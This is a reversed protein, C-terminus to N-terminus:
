NEKIKHTAVLQVDFGASLCVSYHLTRTTDIKFYTEILRNMSEVSQESTWEHVSRIEYSTIYVPTKDGLTSIDTLIKINQPDKFRCNVYVKGFRCDVTLSKANLIMDGFFPILLKVFEESKM